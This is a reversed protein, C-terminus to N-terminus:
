IQNSVASFPDQITPGDTISLIRGTEFGVQFSPGCVARRDLHLCAKMDVCTLWVHAAPHVRTVCPTYGVSIHSDGTKTHSQYSIWHARKLINEAQERDPITPGFDWKSVAGRTGSKRWVQIKCSLKENKFHERNFVDVCQCTSIHLQNRKQFYSFHWFEIKVM